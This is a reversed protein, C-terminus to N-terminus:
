NRKDRGNCMREDSWGVDYLSKQTLGGGVILKGAVNVHKTTWKHVTERKFMATLSEVWRGQIRRFEHKTTWREGAVERAEIRFMNKVDQPCVARRRLALLAFAM